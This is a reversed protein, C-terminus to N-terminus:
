IRALINNIKGIKVGTTVILIEWNQFFFDLNVSFLKIITPITFTSHTTPPVFHRLVGKKGIV